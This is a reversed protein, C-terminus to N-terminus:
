RDALRELVKSVDRWGYAVAPLKSGGVMVMKEAIPKGGLKEYFGRAPNLALVWAVMSTMHEQVLKEMVGRMLRSGIGKRQHEALLYIAYLEAKFDQNTGRYRGASAFGAIQSGEVAVFVHITGSPALWCDWDKERQQHSLSELHAQPVLGAYTSRWCDVHVRAIGSADSRQAPRIDM